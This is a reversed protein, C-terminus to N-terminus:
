LSVRSTALRSINFVFHVTFKDSFTATGVLDGYETFICSAALKFVGIDTEYHVEYGFLIIEM